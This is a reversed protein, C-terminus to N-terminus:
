PYNSLTYKKQEYNEGKSGRFCISHLNNRVWNVQSDSQFKQLLHGIPMDPQMM